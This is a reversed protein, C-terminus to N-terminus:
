EGNPLWYELSLSPPFPLKGQKPPWCGPSLATTTATWKGLQTWSKTVRHSCCALSGQGEGDKLTQGLKGLNMDMFNSEGWQCEASLSCLSKLASNQPPTPTPHIPLPVPSCASVACDARVTVKFNTMLWVLTMHITKLVTLRSNCPQNTGM